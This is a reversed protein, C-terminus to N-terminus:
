FTNNVARFYKLDSTSAFGANVIFFIGWLAYVSNLSSVSLSNIFLVAIVSLIESRNLGSRKLVFWISYFVFLLGLVGHDFIMRLIFSHLLLSFALGEKYDSFLLHYYSLKGAGTESLPTIAPNGALWEIFTWGSVDNIFVLLFQFRDIDEISMNGLRFVFLGISLALVFSVSSIKIGKSIGYRSLDLFLFLSALCLIGSRSGSLLVIVIILLLNKIDLRQRIKVSALFLFLLLMLEFNNETYFGPRDDIGLLHSLAYKILMGVSVVKYILLISNNSIFKECSVCVLIVIYVFVKHIILFDAITGPAGGLYFTIFQIIIYGISLVIIISSSLSYKSIPLLLILTLLVVLEFVINPKLLNYINIDIFSGLATISFTALV